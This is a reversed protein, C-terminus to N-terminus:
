PSPDNCRRTTKTKSRKLKLTSLENSIAEFFSQTSVGARSMISLSLDLQFM